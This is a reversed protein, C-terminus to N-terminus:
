PALVEVIVDTDQDSDDSVREQAHSRSGMESEKAPNPNHVVSLFLCNIACPSCEVPVKPDLCSCGIPLVPHVDVPVKPDLCTAFARARACRCFLELM